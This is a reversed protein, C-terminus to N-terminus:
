GQMPSRVKGSARSCFCRSPTAPRAAWREAAKWVARIEDPKLIRRRKREKSPPKKGTCPTAQLYGQSVAWAFMKRIAALARNAAIRAGRAHISNVLAVVDAGTISQALRGEWRSLVEGKTKTLRLEGHNEPDPELGLYRATERWSREKTQERAYVQIFSRCLEEVTKEIARRAREAEARRRIEDQPDKGLKILYRWEGAIKRAMELTLAPYPGIARRTPNKSGPYRALFIFSRVPAEITGMVRVGLGPALSDMVDYAKDGAKLAKLTRDTLRQRAM